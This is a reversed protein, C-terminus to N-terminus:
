REMLVAEADTIRQFLRALLDGCEDIGVTLLLDEEGGVARLGGVERDLAHGVRVLALALVEDDGRGLMRADDIGDLEELLLAPGAGADADIGLAHELQFFKTGGDGRLGDEDGDVMHVVVDARDLRHALDALDAGLLARREVDIALGAGTPQRDVHLLEARCQDAERRVAEVPRFADAHEVAVLLGADDRHHM